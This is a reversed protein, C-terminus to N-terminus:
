RGQLPSSLQIINGDPDKVQLIRIGHQPFDLVRPMSGTSRGIAAATAAVDNVAFGVKAVGRGRSSPPERNDRIIEVSLAPGRLNIIQWVGDRAQSRDVESLGFTKRYWAASAEADSVLVAFYQPARMDAIAAASTDPVAQAVVAAPVASALWIATTLITAPKM